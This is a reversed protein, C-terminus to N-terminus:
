GFMILYLAVVCQFLIIWLVNCLRRGSVTEELGKELRTIESCVDKNLRYVSQHSCPFTCILFGSKLWLILLFYYKPFKFKVFYVIVRVSVIQNYRCRDSKSILIEINNGM